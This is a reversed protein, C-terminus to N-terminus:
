KEITIGAQIGNKILYRLSSIVLTNKAFESDSIVLQKEKELKQIQEDYTLFRKNSM